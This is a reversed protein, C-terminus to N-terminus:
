HWVVIIELSGQTEIGYKIPSVISNNKKLQYLFNPINPMDEKM